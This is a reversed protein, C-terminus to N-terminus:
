KRLLLSSFDRRLVQTIPPPPVEKSCSRKRTRPTKPNVRRPLRTCREIEVKEEEPNLSLIFVPNLSNADNTCEDLSLIASLQRGCDNSGLAITTKRQTATKRNGAGARSAAHAGDALSIEGSLTPCLVICTSRPFFLKGPV